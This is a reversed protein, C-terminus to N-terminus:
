LTKEQLFNYLDSHLYKLLSPFTATQLQKVRTSINQTHLLYKQSYKVSASLVEYKQKTHLNIQGKHDDCIKM